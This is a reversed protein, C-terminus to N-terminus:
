NSRITGCTKCFIFLDETRKFSFYGIGNEAKEIYRVKARMIRNRSFKNRWGCDGCLWPSAYSPVRKSYVKVSQVNPNKKLEEIMTKTIDEVREKIRRRVEQKSNEESNYKQILEYKKIATEVRRDDVSLGVQKLGDIVYSLYQRDHKEDMVQKVTEEELSM